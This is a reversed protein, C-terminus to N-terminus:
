DKDFPRLRFSRRVLQIQMGEILKLIEVDVSTGAM